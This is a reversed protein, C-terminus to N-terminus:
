SGRRTSVYFRITRVEGLPPAVDFTGLEIWERGPHALLARQYRELFERGSRKWDIPSTTFVHDYADSWTRVQEDTWGPDEALFTVIMAPMGDKRTRATHERFREVSGGRELLGLHLTAHSLESNIGIWGVSAEDGAVAHVRDILEDALERPLGASSYRRGPALSGMGNVVGVVYEQTAEDQRERDLIGIAEAFWVRGLPGSEPWPGLGAVLVVAGVALSVRGRREGIRSWGIAVIPFLAPAVALLFRDLHFPHLTIPIATTLAVIWLVSVERRLVLRISLLLGIAELVLWRPQPSLACAWDLARRAADTPTLDQNGELFALLADRHDAGLAADGPLPYGFWWFIALAPVAALALIRRVYRPGEGRLAPAAEVLLSLFLGFGLILGYNWKTFLAATIWAGAALERGFGGDRRMWARLAFISAVAFPVELFATSAYNLALPCLAGLALALWPALAAGRVPPAGARERTAERVLLFLGFCGFAWLLRGFARVAVEDIGTVSQLGALLLPYGFPYQQCDLLVDSAGGLDAAQAALLMQTAPLEAHMSEDWGWSTAPDLGVAWVVGLLVCAVAALVTSRRERIRVTPHSSEAQAPLEPTTM